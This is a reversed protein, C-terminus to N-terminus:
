ADIRVFAYPALELTLRGSLAEVDGRQQRFEDPREGADAATTEDLWRIVARGSPLPGITCGEASPTLNALLVHLGAGDRVALAEVAFPASSDAEIVERGKWEGLDALVHYLPFVAGPRSPFLDPRPSGEEREIVGRWGTTEYYTVVDAGGEALHKASALTWGAGLLSCQRPDVQFPLEGSPYTGHPWSRPRLTVPGVLVTREGALARASRATDGQASPTEVVSTDDDAHVTATISYAVADVGDLEPRERNL